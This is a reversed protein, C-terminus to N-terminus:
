GGGGGVMRAYLKRTLAHGVTGVLLALAAGALVDTAYHYGGYIAGLALAPVVFLFMWALRHHYRMAMIWVTVAVSVHSSPFATGISSGQDLVWRVVGPMVYGLTAPDMDYFVHYPGAVPFCIFCVFSCYFALLVTGLALDYAERSRRLYLAVPLTFMVFYYSFYALHLYEGLPRWPWLLHLEQSVQMGFISQEAALIREDFFHGPHLAQNLRGVESYFLGFLMLPYLDLLLRGARHRAAGRKRLLYIATMGGLHAAALWYADPINYPFLLLLALGFGLFVLTYIDAPRLATM